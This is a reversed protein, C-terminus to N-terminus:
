YTALAVDIDNARRSFTSYNPVQFDINLLHFLGEIFGQLQRLPLHYISKLILGLEIAPNSYLLPRGRKPSCESSAWQSM